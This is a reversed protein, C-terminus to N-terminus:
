SAAWVVPSIKTRAASNRLSAAAFVGAMVPVLM